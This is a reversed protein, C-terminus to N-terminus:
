SATHQHEQQKMLFLAPEVRSSIGLKNYIRFINNCVTHGM